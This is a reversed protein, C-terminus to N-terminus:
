HHMLTHLMCLVGPQLLMHPLPRHPQLAPVDTQQQARVRDYCYCMSGSTHLCVHQLTRLIGRLMCYPM